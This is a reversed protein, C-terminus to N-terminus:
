EPARGRLLGRSAQLIRNPKVSHRARSQAVSLITSRSTRLRSQIESRLRPLILGSLLFQLQRESVTPGWGVQLFLSAALAVRHPSPKRAEPHQLETPRM